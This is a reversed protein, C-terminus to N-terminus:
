AGNGGRGGHYSHAYIYLYLITIHTIYGRRPPLHEDQRHVVEPGDGVYHLLRINRQLLRINRQLVCIAGCYESVLAAGVAGCDCHVACIASCYACQSAIGMNRQLVCMAICYWIAICYAYQSAVLMNRHLLCIAICCAYATGDTAGGGEREYQLAILRAM